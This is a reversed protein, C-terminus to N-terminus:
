WNPLCVPEASAFYEEGCFYQYYSNEAWQEVVSEDSVNRIHKLVILGVMLRIPKAPAGTSESYYKKFANEFKKWDIPNALLYLPHRHNLQEEFTSFFSTQQKDKLKALM